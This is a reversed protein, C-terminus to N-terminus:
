GLHLRLLRRGSGGGLRHQQGAGVVQRELSPGRAAALAARAGSLLEPVSDGGWLPPPTRRLAGVSRIGRGGLRPGDEDRAATAAPPPPTGASRAPSPRRPETDEPLEAYRDADAPTHREDCTEQ